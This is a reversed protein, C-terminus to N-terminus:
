RGLRLWDAFRDKALAVTAKRQRQPGTNSERNFDAIAANLSDRDADGRIVGVTVGQANANAHLVLRKNDQIGFKM